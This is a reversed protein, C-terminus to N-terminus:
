WAPCCLHLKNRKECYSPTSHRECLFNLGGCPSWAPQWHMGLDISPLSGVPSWCADQGKRWVMLQAGLKQLNWFCSMLCNYVFIIMLPYFILSNLPTQSWWSKLFDSIGLASAFSFRVVQRFKAGWGWSQPVEELFELCWSFIGEIKEERQFLTLIGRRRLGDLATWRCEQVRTLEPLWIGEKPTLFGRNLPHFLHFCGRIGIMLFNSAPM